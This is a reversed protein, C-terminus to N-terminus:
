PVKKEPVPNAAPATTGPTLPDRQADPFRNFNRADSIFGESSGLLIAAFFWWGWRLPNLSFQTGLAIITPNLGWFMLCLIGLFALTFGIIRSVLRSKLLGSPLYRAKIIYTAYISLAYIALFVVAAVVNQM